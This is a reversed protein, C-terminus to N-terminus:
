SRFAPRDIFDGHAFQTLTLLSLAATEARLIRPGLNLCTLRPMQAFRELEAPSFGGEPGVLLAQPKKGTAVWDKADRVQGAEAAVVVQGAQDLWPLLKQPPLLRPVRCRESQETAETLLLTLREVRTLEGQTYDSIVPQLAGVGLETAKVVLWELPTKKLPAFALTPGIDPEAVCVQAAITAVVDRKGQWHLAAHWEGVTENFLGIQAGTKLRLVKGLYAAQDRDLAM